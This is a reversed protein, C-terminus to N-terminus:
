NLLFFNFYFGALSPDFTVTSSNYVTNGGTSISIGPGSITGGYYNVSLSIPTSNVCYMTTNFGNLQLNTLPYVYANKHVTGGCSGTIQYQISHNGPGALLPNFTSFPGNIGSGSLIGGFPFLTLPYSINYPCYTPNLGQIDILSAQFVDM